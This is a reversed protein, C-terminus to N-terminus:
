KAHGVRVRAPRLLKNGFKYGTQMEEIVRGDKDPSCAVLEVAEHMEPNFVEGVSVVPTLGFGSLKAEFIQATAQVGNFLSDFESSKGKNVAAAAVALKLNDLVELLSAILEGRSSELKQEFNRQLRARLEDNENRLQVQAQKFREAFDRVQREAEDRKTEAEKLAIMLEEVKTQSEDGTVVEESATVSIEETADDSFVRRKDTISIPIADSEPSQNKVNSKTEAAATSPNEETKKVSKNSSM